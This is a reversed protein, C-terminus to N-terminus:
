VHLGLHEVDIDKVIDFTDAVVGQIDELQEALDVLSRICNMELLATENSIARKRQSAQLSRCFDGLTAGWAPTFQNYLVGGYTEFIQCNAWVM